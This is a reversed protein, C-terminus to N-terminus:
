GKSKLENQAEIMEKKGCTCSNCYNAPASCDNLNQGFEPLNTLEGVPTNLKNEVSGKIAEMQLDTGNPLMFVMVKNNPFLSQLNKKLSEISEVDYDDGYFKVSLVEDPELKLRTLEVLTFNM